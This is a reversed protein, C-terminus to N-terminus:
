KIWARNLAPTRLSIFVLYKVCFCIHFNCNGSGAIYSKANRRQKSLMILHRRHIHNGLLHVLDIVADARDLILVNLLPRQELPLPIQLTIKLLDQQPSSFPTKPSSANHIM